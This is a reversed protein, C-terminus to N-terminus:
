SDLMRVMHVKTVATGQVMVARRERGWEEFGCSRYLREAAANGESVRLQVQLVGPISSAHELCRLVLARGVGRRTARLAVGMGFLTASHCQQPRSPVTLGVIGILDGADDFAGFVADDPRGPPAIREVTATLPQAFEEDFSSTFALPTERIAQLRFARYAPADDASLPRIAVGDGM